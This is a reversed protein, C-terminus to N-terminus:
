WDQSHENCDHPKYIAIIKDFSETLKAM